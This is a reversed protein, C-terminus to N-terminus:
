RPAGQSNLFPLGMEDRLRALVIERADEDLRVEDNAYVRVAWLEQHRRAIIAADEYRDVLKSIMGRDEILVDALKLRMNPGPVWLVVSWSPKIDAWKTASRELERRKGASGFHAHKDGASPLVERGGAHAIMRFHDRNRIRSALDAIGEQRETAPPQIRFTWILHELVGEDGFSLFMSEMRSAVEADLAKLTEGGALSAVHARLKEDHWRDGFDAVAPVAHLAAELWWEDRLMELLKGLMADYALKTKHYLARETAEYRYRLYKILETVIDIRFEGRRNVSLVLREAYESQIDRPAVFFSDMFRDGLAIPLGTFYHDRSLYDLLDACITNNVVDGIFPYLSTVQCDKVKDLVIARLEAFLSANRGEIPLESKATEVAARVEEPLTLWLAQFRDVNKHHSVLVELDDEITHGFPVHTLDHILATLRALVTAERLRLEFDGDNRWDDLLSPQPDPGDLARVVRDLIKQAAQLTGLSHTFRSHEAGPFVKLTMGLQKVHRLRQFAPSDVILRELENIRIEGHIPDTITKSM